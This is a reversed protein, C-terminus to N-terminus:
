EVASFYANPILRYSIEDGSTNADSGYKVFYSLLVNGYFFSAGTNNPFFEAVEVSNNVTPVYNAYSTSKKAKEVVFPVFDPVNPYPALGLRDKYFKVHLDAYKYRPNEGTQTHNTLELKAFPWDFPGYNIQFPAEKISHDDLLALQFAIPVGPSAKSYTSNATMVEIFGALGNVPITEDSDVGIGTYKVRIDANNIIGKEEETMNRDIGILNRLIGVQKYIANYLKESSASSEIVMIGMRGYTVSKVYVPTTNGTVAGMDLGTPDFLQSNDYPTNLDVTFNEQFFKLKLASNANVLHNEGQQTSNSNFLFVDIGKNYGYLTKLEQYVQFSDIEVQLSAAGIGGPNLNELDTLATNLFSISATPRPLSTTAVVSGSVPMSTSITIPRINNSIGLLMKPDFVGEISRGDLIAGPYINLGMAVDAVTFMNSKYKQNFYLFDSQTGGGLVPILEGPGDRYTGAVPDGVSSSTANSSSRFHKAEAEENGHYSMSNVVFPTIAPERLGEFSAKKADPSIQLDRQCNAFLLCM